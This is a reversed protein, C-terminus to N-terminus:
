PLAVNFVLVEELLLEPRTSIASNVERLVFSGTLASNEPDSSDFKNSVVRNRM